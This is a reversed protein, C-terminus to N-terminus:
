LSLRLKQLYMFGKIKESSYKFYTNPHSTQQDRFLTYRAKPIALLLLSTVITILWIVILIIVGTGIVAM